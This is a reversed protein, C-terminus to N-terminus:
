LDEGVIHVPTSPVYVANILSVEDALFPLLVICRHYLTLGTLNRHEPLSLLRIGANFKLKLSLLDIAQTSSGVVRRRLDRASVKVM